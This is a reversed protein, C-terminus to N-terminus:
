VRTVQFEATGVKVFALTDGLGFENKVLFDSWGNTFYCFTQKEVAFVLSGVVVTQLPGILSYIRGDFQEEGVARWFSTPIDLRASKWSKMHTARMTKTFQPRRDRRAKPGTAIDERHPRPNKVPQPKKMSVQPTKVTHNKKVEQPKKLPPKELSVKVTPPAETRHHGGGLVEASPPTVPPVTPRVPNNVVAGDEPHHITVVLSSDDVLEFVLLDGPGVSNDRVFQDWGGGISHARGLNSRYSMRLFRIPWSNLPNMSTLLACQERRPWGTANSFEEPISLCYIPTSTSIKLIFYLARCHDLEKRVEQEYDDAM